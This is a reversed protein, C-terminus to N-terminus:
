KHRLGAKIAMRNMAAHFFETWFDWNFSKEDVGPRVETEKGLIAVKKTAEKEAAPILADISKEYDTM